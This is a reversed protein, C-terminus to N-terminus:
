NIADMMNDDLLEVCESARLTLSPSQPTAMGVFIPAWPVKCCTRSQRFRKRYMPFSLWPLPLLCFQHSDYHRRQSSGLREKRVLLCSPSTSDLPPSGPEGGHRSSEAQLSYSRRSSLNTDWTAVLSLWGRYKSVM